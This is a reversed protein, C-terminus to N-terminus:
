IERPTKINRCVCRIWGRCLAKQMDPLVRNSKDLIMKVSSHGLSESVAKPNEGEAPLV